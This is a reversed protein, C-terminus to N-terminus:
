STCRDLAHALWVAVSPRVKAVPQWDLRRLAAFWAGVSFFPPEACAATEARLKGREAADAGTENGKHV